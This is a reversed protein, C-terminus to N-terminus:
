DDLAESTLEDERRHIFEVCCRLAEIAALADVTGNLTSIDRWEEGDKFRRVLSINFYKRGDTANEWVSARVGGIRKVFVPAKATGSTEKANKTKM